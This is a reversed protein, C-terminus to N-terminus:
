AILRGLTALKVMHQKLVMVEIHRESNAHVRDYYVQQERNGSAKEPLRKPIQFYRILLKTQCILKDKKNVIV